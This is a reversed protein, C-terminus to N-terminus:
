TPSGCLADLTEWLWDDISMFTYGAAKAKDTNISNEPVNNYPCKNETGWVINATKGLRKEIYEVLARVSVTGESAINYAGTLSHEYAYVAFKGAESTHVMAFKRDYHARSMHMPVGKRINEVFWVLRKSLDDVGGVYPIRIRLNKVAFGLSAKEAARKGMQYAFDGTTFKFDAPNFDAPNFDAERIDNKLVRYVADSSFQIYYDTRVASLLREVHAADYAITDFVADFERGGLKERVTVPNDKNLILREVENGFPNNSRGRNAITVSYNGNLLEKVLYPGMQWTGGFVLIGGVRRTKEKLHELTTEPVLKAIEDFNREKLLARVRSASIPADGSEKRPIVEFRVGYKPLIVRMAANYQRTVNDLPEEGAFRVTIGLAPAIKQGFIEVDMSADITANQQTEKLFYMQFTTKSIIFQGSPVVIVNPLHATGAKVLEFRDAFPFISKDEEVVFIYLADVRSAAYEILYLHGRTFPNCNMVISGKVGGRGGGIQKIKHVYAELKETNEVSLLANHPLSEEKVQATQAMINKYAASYGRDQSFAGAQSLTEALKGAVLRNGIFNFHNGDLWIEGYNHPRNFLKRIDCLPFTKGMIEPIKDSQGSLLLVATDGDAFPTDDMRRRCEVVNMAGGNGCNVVQLRVGNRNLVGQLFSEITHEDSCGVGYAVSNGFIYINGNSQEPLDVTVRCGNISNFYTSQADSMVMYGNKYETKAPETSEDYYARPLNQPAFVTKYITDRNAKGSVVANEFDSRNPVQWLAPVLLVVFHTRPYKLALEKMREFVGRKAYSYALSERVSAVETFLPFKRRLADTIQGDILLPLNQKETLPAIDQFTVEGTRPYQLQVTTTKDCLLLPTLINAHYGQEWLYRALGGDSYLAVETYGKDAFYDFAHGGLPGLSVILDYLPNGVSQKLNEKSGGSERSLEAIKQELAATRCHADYSEQRALDALSLVSQKPADLADLLWKRGRSRERELFDSVTSFDLKEFLDTRSLVEHPSNVLRNEFKTQSLFSQFRTNGRKANNIVIFPKKFIISLCMGHFSDVVSFDCHIIHWLWDEIEGGIAKFDKLAELRPKYDGQMDTFAAVQKGLKESTFRLLTKKEEDPDLIYAFIFNGQTKIRAEVALNEYVEAECLFVPDPMQVAEKGFVERCIAVGSTERTSVYDFRNMYARALPLVSDSFYSKEHGFSTSYAIKKKSDKVFNLMFLYGNKIMSPYFWLQDSGVIFADIPNNLTTMEYDYRIHSIHFHRKAFDSIRIPKSKDTQSPRIMVVTKDQSLLFTYLAYSTLTSGYNVGGWWGVIGIDFREKLAHVIANHFGRKDLYSFFLSRAPHLPAPHTLPRNHVKAVQFSARECLIARNQVDEHLKAGKQTNVLVSSTGKGDNWAPNIKEIGWFDGISIDGTRSPGAFLCATCSKRTNLDQLYARYFDGRMDEHYINGDAYEVRIWAGWGQDKTKFAFDKIPREGGNTLQDLYARYAKPSGISHCLLDMTYLRDHEGIYNRLAAVQCPCGCFLVPKDTTELREEIQRYVTNTDSQVYKSRMLRPLKTWHDIVAHRVGRFDETFEAGCVFGNHELIWDAVLVFMGGSSTVWRVTDKAM